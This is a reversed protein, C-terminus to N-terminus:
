EEDQKQYESPILGTYKRFAKGFYSCDEYGVMRAVQNIKLTKDQLLLKAQDMRVATLYESFNKGTINKFSVSFYSVNLYLLSAVGKLSINEHYHAHIYQEATLVAQVISTKTHTSSIIKQCYLYFQEPYDKGPQYESLEKMFTIGQDALEKPCNWEYLLRMLDGLLLYLLRNSDYLTISPSEKIFINLHNIAEKLAASNHSYISDMIEQAIERPLAAAQPSQEQVQPLIIEHISYPHMLRLGERATLFSQPLQEFCTSTTGLAISIDLCAKTQLQKMLIRSYQLIDVPIRSTMYIGYITGSAAFVQCAYNSSISATVKNLQQEVYDLNEQSDLFRILLIYSYESYFNLNVTLETFREKSVPKNHYLSQLFTHLLELQAQTTLRLLNEKHIQAIAKDITANLEEKRIPKLVYGCANLELASKVYSFENYGSIVIPQLDPLLPHLRSILELGSMGPMRVDTILIDPRLNGALELAEFGNSAEGCLILNDSWNIKNKLSTRVWMEDDAIMIKIM